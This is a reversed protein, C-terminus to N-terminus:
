RNTKFSVILVQLSQTAKLPLLDYDQRTVATWFSGVCLIYMFNPDLKHQDEENPVFQNNEAKLNFLWLQVFVM